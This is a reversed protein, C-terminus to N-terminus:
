SKKKPVGRRRFQQVPSIRGIDYCSSRFHRYRCGSRRGCGCRVRFGPSTASRDQPLAETERAIIWRTSRPSLLGVAVRSAFSEPAKRAPCTSAAPAPGFGSLPPQQAVSFLREPGIGFGAIQATMDRRARIQRQIQHLHGQGGSSRHRNGGRGICEQALDDPHEVAIQHQGPAVRWSSALPSQRSSPGGM